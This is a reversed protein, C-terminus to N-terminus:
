RVNSRISISAWNKLLYQCCTLQNYQCTYMLLTYGNCEDQININEDDLLSELVDLQGDIAAEALAADM